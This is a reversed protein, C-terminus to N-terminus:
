LVVWRQGSSVTVTVGPALTIPSCSTANFGTGVTYNTNITDRNLVLGNGAVLAESQFEGTSPKYLLKANSTYISSTTGSTVDAFLPYEYTATTTDNTISSGPVITGWSTNTGDTTLYKGNNGTQSPALANFAANATTQGTGGNLISLPFSVVSSQSAIIQVAGTDDKYYLKGDKINIALEGNVLNGATPAASPTTSYYLSIPTYGSQAM